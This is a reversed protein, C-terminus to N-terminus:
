VKKKFWEKFSTKFLKYYSIKKIIKNNCLYEINNSIMEKEEESTQFLECYITIVLQKKNIKDSKKVLHEILNCVLNLFETDNKYKSQNLHLEILRNIVKVKIDNYTFDILLNNRLPIIQLDNM